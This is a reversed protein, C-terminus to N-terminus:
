YGFVSCVCLKFTSIQPQLAHCTHLHISAKKSTEGGQSGVAEIAKVVDMGKVVQVCMFLVAGSPSPQVSPSDPLAVCARLSKTSAPFCVHTILFSPFCSSPCLRAKGFVVHKGDLWTTKATCLFFQAHVVTPVRATSVRCCLDRGWRLHSPAAHQSSSPIALANAPDRHRAAM